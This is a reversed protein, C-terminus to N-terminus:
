IEGNKLRFVIKSFLEKEDFYLRDLSYLWKVVKMHGNRCASHFASDNLVHIDIRDLSYLWKAVELHGGACAETFPYEFLDHIDIDGSKYLQKAEMFEGVACTYNFLKQKYPNSFIIGMNCHISYILFYNKLIKLANLRKASDGGM